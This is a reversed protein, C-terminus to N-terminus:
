IEDNSLSNFEPYVKAVKDALEKAEPSLGDHGDGASEEILVPEPSVAVKTEKKGLERGMFKTVKKPGNDEDTAPNSIGLNLSLSQVIKKLGASVQQRLPSLKESYLISNAKEEAQQLLTIAASIEEKHEHFM